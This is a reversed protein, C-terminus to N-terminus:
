LYFLIVKNQLIMISSFHDIPAFEFDRFIFERLQLPYRHKIDIIFEYRESKIM